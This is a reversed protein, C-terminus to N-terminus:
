FYLTLAMQKGRLGFIMGHIGLSTIDENPVAKIDPPTNIMPSFRIREMRNVEYQYTETQPFNLKRVINGVNTVEVLRAGINTNPHSSTGFM